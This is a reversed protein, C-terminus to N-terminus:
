VAPRDEDALRTPELRRYAGRYFILPQPEPEQAELDPDLEPEVIGIVEGVLLTHDGADHESVTRCEFGVLADDFLLVGTRLGLSHKWREFPQQGVHRDRTAFFHSADSMGAPLVSVGWVGAGLVPTHFRADKRVCVLVLVPDLSVSTFSNATMAVHRGDVTTTVVTVGTAFRGVARRFDDPAVGFPGVGGSAPRDRPVQVDADADADADRRSPADAM